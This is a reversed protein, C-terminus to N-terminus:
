SEAEALARINALGAEYDAGVLGDMMLGMWRGIPNNGMDADLGWTLNTGNGAPELIFWARAAGMGGFDLATEVRENEVSEVIEQRGSGVTDVESAWSMINGVGEEPGEFSVEMDPDREAWPSWETGRQLSNVLPFVDEPPAAISIQREVIVHRPQIYAAAAAIIVIVLIGVILRKLLRM